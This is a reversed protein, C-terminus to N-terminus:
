TAHFGAIDSREREKAVAYNCLQYEAQQDQTEAPIACGKRRGSAHLTSARSDVVTELLQFM